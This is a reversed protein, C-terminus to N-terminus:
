IKQNWGHNENVRFLSLQELKNCKNVNKIDEDDASYLTVSKVDRKCITDNLKVCTSNIYILRFVLIISVLLVAYIYKFKIHM